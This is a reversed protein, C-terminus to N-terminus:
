VSLFPVFVILSMGISLVLGLGLGLGVRQSQRLGLIADDIEASSLSKLSDDDIHFLILSNLNLPAEHSAVDGVLVVSHIM